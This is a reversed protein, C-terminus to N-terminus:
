AHPKAPCSKQESAPCAPAAANRQPQPKAVQQPQVPKAVQQPKAQPKSCGCKNDDAYAFGVLTCLVLAASLMKM